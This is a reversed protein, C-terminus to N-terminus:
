IEEFVLKIKNDVKKVIIKPKEVDTIKEKNKIIIDLPYLAFGEHALSQLNDCLESVTM